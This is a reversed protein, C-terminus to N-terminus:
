RRQEGSKDLIVMLVCVAWVVLCAAAIPNTQVWFLLNM